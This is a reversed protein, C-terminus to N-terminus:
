NQNTYTINKLKIRRSKIGKRKKVRKDFNKHNKINDRM